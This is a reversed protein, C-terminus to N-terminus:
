RSLSRAEQPAALCVAYPANACQIHKLVNRALELRACVVLILGLFLAWMNRQTQAMGRAAAPRMPESLSRLSRVDSPKPSKAGDHLPIYSAAWGTSSGNLRASIFSIAILLVGTIALTICALHYPINFAFETKYVTTLYTTGLM